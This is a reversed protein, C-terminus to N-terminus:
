ADVPTSAKRYQAPSCGVHRQFARRFTRESTYGVSGGLQAVSLNTERLLRCAHEMRHKALWGIFTVGVHRRFYRSFGSPSMAAVKAIADLGLDDALHDDVYCLVRELRAFRRFPDTRSAPTRKSATAAGLAADLQQSPELEAFAYDYVEITGAPQVQVRQNWGPAWEVFTHFEDNEGSPDVSEPLAAVFNADFRRGALAAPLAGTDVSCVWAAVGTGLLAACHHHTDMGWLPFVAELGTGATVLLRRERASPSFLNGYAVCEAGAASLERFGRRVSEDHESRSATWSLPILRLPLGAAAAQQELLTHRVGHLIARGNRENVLTVLGRVDWAPEAKLVQLAWASEKGGSWCLWTPKARWSPPNNPM